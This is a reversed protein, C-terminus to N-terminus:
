GSGTVPGSPGGQTTGGAPRSYEDECGAALVVLLAIGIVVSIRGFM